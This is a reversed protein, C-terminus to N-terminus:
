HVKAFNQQLTYRRNKVVNRLSPLWPICWRQVDRCCGTRRCQAACLLSSRCAVTSATVRRPLPPRRCCSSMAEQLTYCLIEIPHAIAHMCPSRSLASSRVQAPRPKWGEVFDHALNEFRWGELSRKQLVAARCAAPCPISSHLAAGTLLVGRMGLAQLAGRAAAVVGAAGGLLGLAAMSGFDFCVPAQRGGPRGAAAARVAGDAPQEADQDSAGALSWLPLLERRWPRLAEAAAVPRAGHCAAAAGGSIAQGGQSNAAQLSSGATPRALLECGDAGPPDLLGPRPQWFGCLQVAPPWYGPRPVM